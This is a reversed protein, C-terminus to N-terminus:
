VGNCQFYRASWTFWFLGARLVVSGIMASYLRNEPPIKGQGGAARNQPAKRVYLFRLKEVPSM